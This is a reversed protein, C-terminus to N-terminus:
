EFDILDVFPTALVSYDTTSETCAGCWLNYGERERVTYRDKFDSVEFNVWTQVKLKIIERVEGWTKNRLKYVETDGEDLYYWNNVEVVWDYKKMEM